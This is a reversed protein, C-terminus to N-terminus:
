ERPFHRIHYLGTNPTTFCFTTGTPLSSSSLGCLTDLTIETAGNQGRTPMPVNRAFTSPTWSGRCRAFRHRDHRKGLGDLGSQGSVGWVVALFPFLNSDKEKIAWDRSPLNTQMM